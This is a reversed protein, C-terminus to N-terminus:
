IYARLWSIISDELLRSTKTHGITAYQSYTPLGTHSARETIHPSHEYKSSVICFMISILWSHISIHETTSHTELPPLLSVISRISVRQSHDHLCADCSPFSDFILLWTGSCQPPFDHRLCICWRTDHSVGPANPGM